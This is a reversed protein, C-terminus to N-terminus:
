NIVFHDNIIEAILKNGKLNLHGSECFYDFANKRETDTLKKVTNLFHVKKTEKISKITEFYNNLLKQNITKDFKAEDRTFLSLILFKKVDHEESIKIADLTNLKFNKIAIKIDTDTPKNKKRKKGSSNNIKSFGHDMIKFFTLNNKATKNIRLLFYSVPNIQASSYEGIIKDTNRELGRFFSLIEEDRHAWIILDPKKSINNTLSHELKKISYDSFVGPKAFNVINIKNNVKILEDPWSSSNMGCNNGKTLSAGYTWIITSNEEGSKNRKKLIRNKKSVNFKFESLDLIEFKIEKSFGYLFVDLNKTNYSVITRSTFEMILLYISILASYFIIKKTLKM